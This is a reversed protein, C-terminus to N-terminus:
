QSFDIRVLIRMCGIYTDSLNLLSTLVNEDFFNSSDFDIKM